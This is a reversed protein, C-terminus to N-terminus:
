CIWAAELQKIRARILRVRRECDRYRRGSLEDCDHLALAAQATLLDMEDIDDDTEDPLMADYRAQALAYSM